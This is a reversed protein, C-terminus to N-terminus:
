QGRLSPVGGAAFCASAAPRTAINRINVITQSGAEVGVDRALINIEAPEAADLICRTAVDAVPGPMERALVPQVVSEATRRVAKDALEQPDCAVLVLVAM